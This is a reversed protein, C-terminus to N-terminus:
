SEKEKYLKVAHYLVLYKARLAFTPGFLTRLTPHINNDMYGLTSACKEVNHSAVFGQSEAFEIFKRAYENWEKLEYAWGIECELYDRGGYFNVEEALKFAMNEVSKASNRHLISSDAIHYAADNLFSLERDFFSFENKEFDTRDAIMSVQNVDIYQLAGDYAKHVAGCDDSTYKQTAFIVVGEPQEFVTYLLGEKLSQAGGEVLFVLMRPQNPVYGDREIEVLVKMDKYKTVYKRIDDYALDDIKLFPVNLGCEIATNALVAIIQDEKQITKIDKYLKGLALTVASAIGLLVLKM